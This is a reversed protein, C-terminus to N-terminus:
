IVRAETAGAPPHAARHRRPRRPAAAARPARAALTRPAARVDPARAEGGRAARGIAAGAVARAEGLRRGERLVAPLAAEGRHPVLGSALPPGTGRLLSRSVRAAPRPER